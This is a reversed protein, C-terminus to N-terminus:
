NNKNNTFYNNNKTFYMYWLHKLEEVSSNNNTNFASAAHVRHYCLIKDINYIKRKLYFLKFWMSYDDLGKVPMVYVPDDWIADLKKIIVSSNIIPNFSFINHTNSINGLPIPPSGTKDGFYECKGGVVDYGANLYHIQSELKDSVWYDDVDLVAIYEYKTDNVMKNLTNSKGCADYYKIIIDYKKEPDLHSGIEEAKQQVESNEPHGNIGIILQWKTYTQEIVSEMSKELFEIGNYLPILVSIGINQENKDHLFINM